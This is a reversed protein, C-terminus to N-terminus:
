RIPSNSAGTLPQHLILGYSTIFNVSPILGSESGGILFEHTGSDNLIGLLSELIETAQPDRSIIAFARVLSIPANM